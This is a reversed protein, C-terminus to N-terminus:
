GPYVQRINESLSSWYYIHQLLNRMKTPLLVTSEYFALEHPLAVSVNPAVRFAIGLPLM